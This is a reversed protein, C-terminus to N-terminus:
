NLGRERIRRKIEELYDPRVSLEKIELLEGSSRMSEAITHISGNLQIIHTRAVRCRRCCYHHVLFSIREWVTLERDFSDSLREMYRKCSFWSRSLWARIASLM